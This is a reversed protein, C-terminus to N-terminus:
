SWRNKLLEARWQGRWLLRRNQLKGKKEFSKKKSRGRWRHIVFGITGPLILNASKFSFILRAPFIFNENQIGVRLLEKQLFRERREMERKEERQFREEKRQQERMLRQEEKRRERDQREMEKKM